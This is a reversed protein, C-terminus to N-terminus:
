VITRIYRYVQPILPFVIQAAAILWSAITSALIAHTWPNTPSLTTLLLSLSIGIALVGEVLGLVAGGLRDLTPVLPVVRIIKQVVHFILGAVRAVLFFIAVFAIGQAAPTYGLVLPSIYASVPIYFLRGLLLGAHLGLVSGVAHILGMFLNLAIFLFLILLLIADLISM